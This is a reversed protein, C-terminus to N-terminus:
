IEIGTLFRSVHSTFRAILKLNKNWLYHSFRHMWLAHLGPYCLVVEPISRAAPDKEFINDIDQKAKKILNTKKGVYIGGVLLPLTLLFKNKM